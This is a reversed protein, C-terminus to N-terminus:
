RGLGIDRLVMVICAASLTLGRGGTVGAVEIYWVFSGLGVKPCKCETVKALPCIGGDNFLMVRVAERREEKGRCKQGAFSIFSKETV